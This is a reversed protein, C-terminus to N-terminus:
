TEIGTKVRTRGCDQQEWSARPLRQPFESDKFVVLSWLVSVDADTRFGFPSSMLCM